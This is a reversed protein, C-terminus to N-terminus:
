PATCQLMSSQMFRLTPHANACLRILPAPARCYPQPPTSCVSHPTHSSHIQSTSVLSTNASHNIPIRITGPLLIRQIKRSIRGHIRRPISQNIKTYKTREGRDRDLVCVLFWCLVHWMTGVGCGMPAGDTRTGGRCLAVCVIGEMRRALQMDPLAGRRALSEREVVSGMGEATCDTAM